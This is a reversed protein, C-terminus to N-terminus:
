TMAIVAPSTHHGYGHHNILRIKSNLGELKNNSLGLDVAALIQERTQPHHRAQRPGDHPARGIPHLSL